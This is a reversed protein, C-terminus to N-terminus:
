LEWAAMWGQRGCDYVKSAKLCDGVIDYPVPCAAALEDVTDKNAAMGMAHIVTDAKFEIEKGDKNVAIIGDPNIRIVQYGEAVYLLKDMENLLGLRHMPYSGKALKSSDGRIVITVNKGDHALDLATECGALGGGLMIVRKGVSSKDMYVELAQKAYHIGEIEPYVPHSGIAFIVHDYGGESIFGSDAVKNLIVEIPRENVRRILLDKFNKLGEKYFDTDTFFLLGGLKSKAEVLTVKHGRDSATIAATMGAVGGGVVLIKKSPGAPREMYESDICFAHPNVTCGFMKEVTLEVGELPGQFCRFCRICQSIDDAVGSAVKNPFDPDASLPRGLSVIDCFGDRVLEEATDPDTIGGVLSVPKSIAEKIIKSEAKNLGKPQFMSSFEGSLIPNRYTGVSVNVIDFYPEALKLFRAVEDVHMGEPGACEEGSVRLEIIFDEGMAARVGKLLMLPFRARNELTGGYEDTRKNTRPSLFQHLLWGHGAHIMIGDIGAEKFWKAARIFDATVDEMKREDMAFIEMGDERVYGMPGIGFAVGPIKEVSEGCHSLEVLSAAGFSKMDSIMTKFKAMAPDNFDSYDIPPFPERSAGNFNVPTEGIIVEAAGGKAREHMAKRLVDGLDPINIFTGCYIPASVIRHKFNKTGVRIPKLLNEYPNMSKAEQLITDAGSCQYINLMRKQHGPLNSLM